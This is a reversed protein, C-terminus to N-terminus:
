PKKDEIYPWYWNFDKSDKWKGANDAWEKLTQELAESVEEATNWAAHVGKLIDPTLVDRIFKDIQEWSPFDPFTDIFGEFKHIAQTLLHANDALYTKIRTDQVNRQIETALKGRVFSERGQELQKMRTNEIVNRATASKVAIEADMVQRQKRATMIQERGQAIALAKASAGAAINEMRASAGPPSSAGGLKASLIPNLGAARLDAVERQHATSSMREQFNMQERAIRLNAKNASNQGLIDGVFGLGAGVLGAIPNGTSATAALGTRVGKWISM